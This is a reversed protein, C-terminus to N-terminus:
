PAVKYGDSPAVWIVKQDQAPQAQGDLSAKAIFGDGAPVFVTCIEHGIIPTLHQAVKELFPAAKDAPVAESSLTLSGGTIDSKKIAGCVAGDRIRVETTTQMIVLPDTSLMVIASTAFTGDPAAAYSALSTCTKRDTPVYCQVKGAAAPALPDPYAPASALVMAMLAFPM